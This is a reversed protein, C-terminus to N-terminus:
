LSQKVNPQPERCRSGDTAPPLKESSLLALSERCTYCLIILLTLLQSEKLNPWANNAKGEIEAGDKGKCM